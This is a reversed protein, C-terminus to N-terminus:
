EVEKEVVEVYIKEYFYNDDNLSGLLEQCTEYDFDKDNAYEVFVNVEEELYGINEWDNRSLGQTHQWEDLVKQVPEILSQFATQSNTYVNTKISNKEIFDQAVVNVVYMKTKTRSMKNINELHIM